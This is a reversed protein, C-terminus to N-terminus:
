VQPKNIKDGGKKLLPAKIKNKLYKSM